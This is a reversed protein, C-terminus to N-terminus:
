GLQQIRAVASAMGHLAYPDLLHELTPRLFQAASSADRVGRQLLLSAVPTPVGAAKALAEM